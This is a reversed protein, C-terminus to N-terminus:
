VKKLQRIDELIFDMLAPGASPAPIAQKLEAISAQGAAILDAVIAPDDAIQPLAAPLAQCCGPRGPGPRGAGAQSSRAQRSAARPSDEAVSAQVVTLLADKILPASQGMNALLTRRSAPSALDRTVDVFLRGGAAYM